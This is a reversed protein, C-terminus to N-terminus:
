ELLLRYQEVIAQEEELEGKDRRRERIIQRVAKVNYGKSKLVTFIDKQDRAVDQKEGELREYDAVAQRLETAAAEMAKQNHRRFDEDDKMPLAM